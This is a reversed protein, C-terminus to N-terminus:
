LGDYMSGYVYRCKEKQSSVGVHVHHYTRNLCNLPGLYGHEERCPKDEVNRKESWDTDPLKRWPEFSSNIRSCLVVWAIWHNSVVTSLYHFYSILLWLDLVHGQAVLWWSRDYRHDGEGQEPVKTIQTNPGHKRFLKPFSSWAPLEHRPFPPLLPLTPYQTRILLV